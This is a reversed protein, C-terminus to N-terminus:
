EASEDNEQWTDSWIPPDLTGPLCTPFYLSITKKHSIKNLNSCFMDSFADENQHYEILM